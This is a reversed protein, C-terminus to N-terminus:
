IVISVNGLVFITLCFDLVHMFTKEKSSFKGCHNM